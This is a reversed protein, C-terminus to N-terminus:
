CSQARLSAIIRIVGGIRSKTMKYALFGLLFANTGTVLVMLLRAILEHDPVLAALQPLVVWTLLRAPFNPNSRWDFVPRRDGTVMDVALNKLSYDDLYLGRQWVVMYGLWLCAVGVLLYGYNSFFVSVRRSASVIQPIRGVFTLTLAAFVVVLVLAVRDLMSNWSPTAVAETIWVRDSDLTQRMKVDVVLRESGPPLLLAVRHWARQEPTVPPDLAM